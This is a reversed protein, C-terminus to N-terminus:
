ERLLVKYYVNAEQVDSFRYYIKKWGEREWNTRFDVAIIDYKEAETDLDQERRYHVDGRVHRLYFPLPWYHNTAVLVSVNKKQKNYRVVSEVFDIMGASTHVYSYPNGPGYPRDFVLRYTVRGGVVILVTAILEILRRRTQPSDSSVFSFLTLLSAIIAGATINIILWPTKYAVFSYVVFHALSWVSWFRLSARRELSPVLSRFVGVVPLLLLFPETTLLIEFYYGFPKHHGVDSENRSVWQPVALAMERLGESWYFGATFIFVVIFGCAVLALGMQPARKQFARWLSAWGGSCSLLAVVACFGTIIFTEKTTILGALSVGLSWKASDKGELFFQFLAWGFCIGCLVFLSEHIAYRSYFVLSPSVGAFLLGAEAARLNWGTAVFLIRAVLAVLLLGCLVASLKMSLEDPEAESSFLKTTGVLLYFYLPGHYNAHSYPYYGKQLTEKVFHYNVGEDNHFPRNSLDYTRLGIAVGFSLALILFLPIWRNGLRGPFTVSDM